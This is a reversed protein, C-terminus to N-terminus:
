LRPLRAPRRLRRQPLGPQPLAAELAPLPFTTFTAEKGDEGVKGGKGFVPGGGSSQAVFRYYYTTAPSLGGLFVGATPLSSNVAKDGLLAGPPAPQEKCGESWGSEPCEATGYQVYYTTDKWFHPNIEARVVAGDSDASLAYQEDISPPRKPPPM